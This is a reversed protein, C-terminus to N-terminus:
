DIDRWTIDGANITESTVDGVRSFGDAALREYVARMNRSGPVIRVQHGTSVLHM